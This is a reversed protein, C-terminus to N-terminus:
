HNRSFIAQKRLRAICEGSGDGFVRRLTPIIAPLFAVHGATEAAVMRLEPLCAAMQRMGIAPLSM